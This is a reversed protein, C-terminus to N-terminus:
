LGAPLAVMLTDLCMENRTGWGPLVPAHDQSTDYNCTLQLQSDATLMPRAGKYFYFKQWHFNWNDVRAQCQDTGGAGLLHLESSRGRQHMHPAVAVIELPPGKDLGMEKMTAKWTYPESTMGPRLTDPPMKRFLSTLFGDPTLFALQRDVHDAYRMRVTTSDMLGQTTPDALNYHVQVVLKDGPRQRAGFGDPFVVPGQGPAWAVPAAEEEVGEGAGGFCSWGPRDPDAADLGQIIEGNSPGKRTRRQPDVVFALVHHVIEPRGPVIEYGTIFQDSALATDLAFCRYEDFQALDGGAAVPTINPTHYETAAALHPVSPLTFAVRTGEKMDGRAWEEILDIQGPALAEADEFQGCSGDHTILFPPMVGTRTKVAILAARAKVQDYDLMSFPGAGGPQHCKVCKDNLVPAVDGWYTHASTTTSTGDGCGLLGACATVLLARLTIEQMTHHRGSDHHGNATRRGRKLCRAMELYRTEEGKGGVSGSM